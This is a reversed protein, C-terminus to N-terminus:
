VLTALQRQKDPVSPHGLILSMCHSFCSSHIRSFSSWGERAVNEKDASHLSYYWVRLKSTIFHFTILNTSCTAHPFMLIHLGEFVLLSLIVSSLVDLFPCLACSPFHTPLSHPPLHAGARLSGTLRDTITCPSRITTPHFLLSELFM